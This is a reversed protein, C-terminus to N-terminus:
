YAASLSAIVLCSCQTNSARSPTKTQFSIGNPGVPCIIDSDADFRLLSCWLSVDRRYEQPFPLGTIKYVSLNSNGSAGYVGPEKLFSEQVSIAMLGIPFKGIAKFKVVSGKMLLSSDSVAPSFIEPNARSMNVFVGTRTFKLFAALSRFPYNVSISFPLRAHLIYM